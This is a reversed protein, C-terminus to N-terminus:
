IEELELVRDVNERLEKLSKEGSFIVEQKFHVGSKEADLADAYLVWEYASSSEWFSSNLWLVGEKLLFINLKMKQKAWENLRLRLKDMNKQSPLQDIIVLTKQM